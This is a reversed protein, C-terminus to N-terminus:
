VEGGVKLSLCVMLNLKTENDLKLFHDNFDFLLECILNQTCDIFSCTCTYTNSLSMKTFDASLALHSSLPRPRHTPHLLICVKMTDIQWMCVYM